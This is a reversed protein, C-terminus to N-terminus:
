GGYGVIWGVVFLAAVVWVVCFLVGVLHVWLDGVGFQVVVFM